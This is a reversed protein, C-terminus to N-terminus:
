VTSSWQWVGEMLAHTGIKYWKKSLKQLLAVRPGMSHARVTAIHGLSNFTGYLVFHIGFYNM